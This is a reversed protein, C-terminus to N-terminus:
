HWKGGPEGAEVGMRGGEAERTKGAPPEFVMSQRSEVTVRWCWGLPASSYGELQWYCGNEQWLLGQTGARAIAKKALGM